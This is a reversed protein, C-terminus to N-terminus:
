KTFKKLRKQLEYLERMHLFAEWALNLDSWYHHTFMVPDDAREPKSFRLLHFGGTIPEDPHNEEWLERYAALQCLMGPWISNSTKYDGLALENNILMCDLTGGYKHKESILSVESHGIRFSSAKAWELFGKYAHNAKDMTEPSYQSSDFITGKAYAEALKHCVTGADAAKDREARHDLGQQGLRNAWILLGEIGGLSVQSIVTTVSPVRTGDALLYVHHPSFIENEKM